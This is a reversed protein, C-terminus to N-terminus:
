VVRRGKRYKMVGGGQTAFAFKWADGDLPVQGIQVRMEKLLRTRELGDLASGSGPQIGPIPTYPNEITMSSVYGLIDPTSVQYHMWAASIASIILLVSTFTLITFYVWNCVVITFPQIVLPTSSITNIPSEIYTNPTNPSRSLLWFTNFVATLRTSFTANDIQSLDVISNLLNISDSGSSLYKETISSSNVAGPDVIPWAQFMKMAIIDDSLPTPTSHTSETVNQFTCISNGGLGSPKCLVTLNRTDLNVSCNWVTVSSPQFSGFLITQPRPIDANFKSGTDFFFGSGLDARALLTSNADNTYITDPGLNHTWPQNTAYQSFSPCSFDFLSVPFTINSIMALLSPLFDVIESDQVAQSQPNPSIGYIPVGAFSTVNVTTGFSPSELLSLETNPSPLVPFQENDALGGSVRSTEDSFYMASFYNAKLGLSAIEDVSQNPYNGSGTTNSISWPTSFVADTVNRTEIRTGSEARLRAIQRLANGVIASFLIPLITPGFKAAELLILNLNDVKSSITSVTGNSNLLIDTYSGNTPYGTVNLFLKPQDKSYKQVRGPYTSNAVACLIAFVLVFAAVIALFISASIAIIRNWATGEQVHENPWKPNILNQTDTSQPIALWTKGQSSTTIPQSEITSTEKRGASSISNNDVNSHVLRSPLSSHLSNRINVPKRNIMLRDHEPSDFPRHNDRAKPRFSPSRKDYFSSTVNYPNRSQLEIREQDPNYM